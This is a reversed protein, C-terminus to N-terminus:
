DNDNDRRWKLEAELQIKLRSNEDCLEGNIKNAAGWIAMKAVAKLGAIHKPEGSSAYDQFSRGHYGNIYAMELESDEFQLPSEDPQQTEKSVEDRAIKMCQNFLMIANRDDPHEDVLGEAAQQEAQAILTDLKALAQQYCTMEGILEHEMAGMVSRSELSIISERAARYKPMVDALAQRVERLTNQETTM